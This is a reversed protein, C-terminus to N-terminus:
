AATPNKRQNRIAYSFSSPHKRGWVVYLLVSVINALSLIAFMPSYGLSSILYGAIGGGLGWGIDYACLFTSNASGRREPPAIHVAMSQLAPELGGFGYGALVAALLFTVTNPAFALLLFAAFMSANCSYVFVGEGNRDAVKGVTARTVFLMVAMITFFIGGSPLNNKSAFLAIFNELAGFTLLFVFMIVSAPLADKDILQQVNFPVKRAPIEPTKLFLFLLFAIVMCGTEAAFLASYGLGYMLALGLAPACASAFATSVGFMGMGEAFRKRPVIDTAITSSTTNSFSLAAGHAMRFVFAVSLVPVALYGMPILAMGVIGILLLIKRKGRNLSLGIFPRFIVAILSFLTATLGALAESGGLSQIYFPFTSLTMVHNVFILFNILIVFLFDKSWLGSEKRSSNVHKTEM